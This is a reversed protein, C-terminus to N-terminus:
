ESAILITKNVTVSEIKNKSFYVPFYQDKAWPEFLNSYFFSNPDGSQGPGNTGIAADWDGTNVIMRFSAGSSQRNNGGTSGPTYSNGGRPLPGLDLKLKTEADVVDGLAHKIYVHKFKKQGYQWKSIDEGLMEELNSVGKEFAEILFDNRGQIPDKGFRDDPTQLWNIIKILQISTIINKGENPIFKEIALTKVQNEFAVYVSAPISNPELKFNWSTLKSLAETARENMSLSALLPVLIRAPLSLVDVQLTKMDNMTMKKGSGLVEEVREGRYPDAWSYGIADWQNYDAPTVSQNATAFYGEKPNYINPKEIIPLYGDWEYRGDGPVPVLGSFNRRIPAIGVAQWGINGEKDAWVM